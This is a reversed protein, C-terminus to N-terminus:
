RTASPRFGAAGILGSQQQESKMAVFRMSPRTVAECIAEADAADNKNGRVYPKVYTPPMLKVEHGLATLERAWHHSTGCAEIGVLCPALQEFFQLVESRRLRKRVVVGEGDVAHVQFVHKSIDLGVVTM